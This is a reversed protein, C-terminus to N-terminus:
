PILKDLKYFKSKERNEVIMSEGYMYLSYKNEEFLKTFGNVKQITEVEKYINKNM